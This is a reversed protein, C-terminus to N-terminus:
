PLPAFEIRTLSQGEFRSRREVVRPAFSGDGGDVRVVTWTWRADLRAAHARGEDLQWLLEGDLERVLEHRQESSSSAGSPTTLAHSRATGRMQFVGLRAGSFERVGWFIVEIEGELNRRLQAASQRAAQDDEVAALELDGGPYLLPALERAHVRWRQSPEVPASPLLAAFDCDPELGDLVLERAAGSSAPAEVLSRAFAAGRREFRVRAGAFPSSKVRDDVEVGSHLTLRSQHKAGELRSYTRVLTDVRGGALALREDLFELSDSSELKLGTPDDALVRLVGDDRVEHSLLELEVRQEVRVALRLPTAHDLAMRPAAPGCAALLAVLSSFLAIKM